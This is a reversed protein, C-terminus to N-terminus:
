QKKQCIEKLKSKARQLRIGVTNIPIRLIDSIEKYKREEFYFLVLVEKYKIPLKDLCKKLNNKDIEIEFDKELNVKGPIVESLWDSLSTHQLNKEKKLFNIAHNHVIRYIWSSFNKSTNFGKLNIFAKIFSEQVIDEAQFDNAGLYKAYRVLKKRYRKVLFVFLEQDQHQVLPVLAEDSLSQYQNM